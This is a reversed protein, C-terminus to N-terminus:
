SNTAVANRWQKPRQGVPKTAWYDRLCQKTVVDKESVFSDHDPGYDSWRVLYQLGYQGRRHSVIFDLATERSLEPQPQVQAHGRQQQRARAKARQQEKRSVRIGAPHFVHPGDVAPWTGPLRHMASAGDVDTTRDRTNASMRPRASTPIGPLAPGPPGQDVIASRMGMRRQDNPTTSSPPLDPMDVDHEVAAEGRGQLQQQPNVEQAVATTGPGTTNPLFRNHVLARLKHANMSVQRGTTTHKLKYVDSTSSHQRALVEYPGHWRPAFAHSHAPTGPASNIIPRFVQVLTGPAFSPAPRSMQSDWRTKMAAAARALNDRVIDHARRLHATLHTGYQREDYVIDQVPGSLVDSPQRAERGHMLYFPSFGTQAHLSTRYAFLITDIHQDWSGAHEEAYIGLAEKITRNFREVGGNAAPHYPTTFRQEAGM